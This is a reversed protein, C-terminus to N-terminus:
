DEWYKYCEAITKFSSQVFMTVEFPLASLSGSFQLAEFIPWLMMVTHVRLYLALCMSSSHWSSPSHISLRLRIHVIRLHCVSLRLLVIGLRLHYVVALNWLNCNADVAFWHHLDLHLWVIILLILWHYWHHWSGLNLNRCPNHTGSDINRHLIISHNSSSKLILTDISVHM